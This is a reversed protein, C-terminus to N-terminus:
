GAGAAASDPFQGDRDVAQRGTAILQGRLVLRVGANRPSARVPLGNDPRPCVDLSRAPAPADSITQKMPLAAPDRPRDYQHFVRQLWDRVVTRRNPL